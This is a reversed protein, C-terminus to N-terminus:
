KVANWWTDFLTECAVYDASTWLADPAGGTSNLLHFTCMAHDEIPRGSVNRTWKVTLERLEFAGTFEMLFLALSEDPPIMNTTVFTFWRGRSTWEVVASLADHVEESTVLFLSM